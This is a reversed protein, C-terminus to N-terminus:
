WATTGVVFIGHYGISKQPVPHYEGLAYFYRLRLVGREFVGLYFDASMFPRIDTGGGGGAYRGGSLMAGAGIAAGIVPSTREETWEETSLRLGVPIHAQDLSLGSSTSGFGFGVITQIMAALTVGGTQHLPLVVGIGVGFSGHPTAVGASDVSVLLSGLVLEVETKRQQQALIDGGMALSVIM